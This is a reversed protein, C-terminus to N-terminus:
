LLQKFHQRIETGVVPVSCDKRESERVHYIFTENKTINQPTLSLGGCVYEPTTM